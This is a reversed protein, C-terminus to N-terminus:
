ARSGKLEADERELAEVEEKYCDPCLGHSFTVEARESIYGEITKWVEQEIKVKHCRSCVVLLGSLIRTQLVFTYGVTIVATTIVCASLIMARFYDPETHQRGYVINAFDFKENAWILLLLFVFAAFQWLAIKDLGTKAARVKEYRQLKEMAEVGIYDDAASVKDGVIM